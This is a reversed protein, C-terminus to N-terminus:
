RAGGATLPHAPRLAARMNRLARRELCSVAEISRNMAQAAADRPYRDLYRLIAHRQDPTLRALTHVFTVRGIRAPTTTAAGTDARTAEDRVAYAARTYRRRSWDHRTSARAALILLWGRVDTLATPLEALAHCFADHVLDPVADPDRMRMRVYATITAHFGRYLETFADRDRLQARHLLMVAHTSVERRPTDAHTTRQPRPHHTTGM